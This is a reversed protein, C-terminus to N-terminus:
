GISVDMREVQDPPTTDLETMMVDICQEEKESEAGKETEKAKQKGKKKKGKGKRTRTPEPIFKGTIRDVSMKHSNNAAAGVTVTDSPPEASKPKLQVERFRIRQETTSVPIISRKSRDSEDKDETFLIESGILTDHQGKLITGSLQLFPTPTDLGILHYTSSSAVLTPEISGGLDLTVYLVEEGEEYEDDPGFSEVHKYGPCLREESAM